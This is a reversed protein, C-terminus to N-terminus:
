PSSESPFVGDSAKLCDFSVSILCFGWGKKQAAKMRVPEGQCVTLVRPVTPVTLVAELFTRAKMFYYFNYEFQTQPPRRAM